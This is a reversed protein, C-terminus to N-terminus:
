VGRVYCVNGMEVGGGQGMGALSFQKLFLFDWEEPREVETCM